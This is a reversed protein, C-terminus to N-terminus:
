IAPLEDDDYAVRELFLGYPPASKGARSRDRAELAEALAEPSLQGAEHELITGLLSRVMKWVFSSAAVRYVM